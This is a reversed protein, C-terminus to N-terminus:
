NFLFTYFTFSLSVVVWFLNMPDLIWKTPQFVRKVFYIILIYIYIFFFYYWICPLLIFENLCFLIHLKFSVYVHLIWEKSLFLIVINFIYFLSLLEYREPYFGCSKKVKWAM